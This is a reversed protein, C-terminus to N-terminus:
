GNKDESAKLLKYTNIVRKTYIKTIEPIQNNMVAGIGCNYAAIADEQVKLKENLYRIHHLALFTNQKPNFPDFDIDLDWYAPLFSLYIYKDNLQFGGLDLTGNENHHIANWNMEPNEVLLHAVPLDPDIGLEASLDEIYDSIVPDMFSYRHVREEEAKPQEYEFNVHVIRTKQKLGISYGILVLGVCVVLSTCICGILYSRKM